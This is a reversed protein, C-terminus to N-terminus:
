YLYLIYYNCVQDSSFLVPYEDQISLLSANQVVIKDRRDFLTLDMLHLITNSDKVKRAAEKKLTSINRSLSELDESEPKKPVYNPMGYREASIVANGKAGKQKKLRRAAVEPIDRDRHKRMNRFKEKLKTV